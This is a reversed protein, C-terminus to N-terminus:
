RPARLKLHRKNIYYQLSKGDVCVGDAKLEARCSGTCLDRNAEKLSNMNLAYNWLPGDCAEQINSYNDRGQKVQAWCRPSAAYIRNALTALGALNRDFNAECQTAARAADFATVMMALAIVSYLIRM